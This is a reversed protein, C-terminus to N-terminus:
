ACPDALVACLGRCGVCVRWAEVCEWKLGTEGRVRWPKPGLDELHLGAETTQGARVRGEPDRQQRARLELRREGYPRTDGAGRSEEWGWSLVSGCLSSRGRGPAGGLGLCHM